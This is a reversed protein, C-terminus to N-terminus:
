YVYGRDANGPGFPIHAVTGADGCDRDAEHSQNAHGRTLALRRNRPERRLGPDHIADRSRCQHGRRLIRASSRREHEHKVPVASRRRVGGARKARVLEPRVRDHHVRLPQRRGADHGIGFAPQRSPLLLGAVVAIAVQMQDVRHERPREIVVRDIARVHKGGAMRVAARHHIEQPGRAAVAKGIRGGGVIGLQKGQLGAGIMFEFTWGIWKGARILRDGESLRRTVDLILAWTFDAVADSLV